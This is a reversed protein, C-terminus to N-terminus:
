PKFIEEARKNAHGSAPKKARAVATPKAQAPPTDDLEIADSQEVAAPAAAVAVPPAVKPAPPKTDGLATATTATTTSRAPALDDTLDAAVLVLGLLVLMAGFAAGSVFAVKRWPTRNLAAKLDTVLQVFPITCVSRVPPRPSATRLWGSFVRLLSLASVKVDIWRSPQAAPPFSSTMRARESARAEIETITYVSYTLNRPATTTDIVRVGSHPTELTELTGAKHARGPTPTAIANGQQAFRQALKKDIEGWPIQRRLEQAEEATPATRKRTSARAQEDASTAPRMSPMGM